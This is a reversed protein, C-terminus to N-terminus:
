QSDIADEIQDCFDNLDLSVSKSEDIVVTQEDNKSFFKNLYWGYLWANVVYAEGKLLSITNNEINGESNPQLPVWNWNWSNAKRYQIYGNPVPIDMALGEYSETAGIYCTAKNISLSFTSFEFEGPNVQIKLDDDCINDFEQYGIQEDNFTATLSLKMNRPANFFHLAGDSDGRNKLGWPTYIYGGGVRKLKYHIPLSLDNGVIEISTNCSDTSFWDLNWYSLHEATFSIKYNGTEPNLEGVEGTGEKQWEGSEPELSWIPISDGTKIAEGTDPNITDVPMEMDVEIPNDSFDHALKGESDTVEMAFFGGSVFAGDSEGNEDTVSAQSLGGPFADLATETTNNYFVVNTTLQGSLPQGDKDKITAGQPISVAAKVKTQATDEVSVTLTDVLGQETMQGSTDQKGAAGEPVNDIATLRITADYEGSENLKMPKNNLMYGDASAVLIINLEGDTPFSTLSFNYRGNEVDIYGEDDAQGVLDADDGVVKITADSVTEATAADLITGSITPVALTEWCFSAGSVGISLAQADDGTCPDKNQVQDDDNNDGSGTDQKDNGVCGVLAIACIGTSALLFRKLNTM